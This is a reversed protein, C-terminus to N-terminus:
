PDIPTISTSLLPLVNTLVSNCSSKANQLLAVNSKECEASSAPNSQMALAPYAAAAATTSSSSSFAVAAKTVNTPLVTQVQRKSNDNSENSPRSFKTLAINNRHTKNFQARRLLGKATRQASSQTLTSRKGHVSATDVLTVKNNIGKLAGQEKATMGTTKVEAVVSATKAPIALKHSAIDNSFAATM